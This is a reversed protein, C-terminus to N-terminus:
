WPSHPPPGGLAKAKLAGYAYDMLPRLNEVDEGLHPVVDAILACRVVGVAL